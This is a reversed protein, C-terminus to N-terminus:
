QREIELQEGSLVTKANYPMTCYNCADIMKYDRFEDLKKALQEVSYDYINIIESTKKLKGLSVGGFQHPCTYLLGNCLRNCNHLFCDHFGNRLEDSSKKVWEFSSFDSWNQKKGIFFKVNFRKFKEITKHVNETLATSLSAQYNSIYGTYQPQSLLNCLEDSPVVTGNTFVHVTGVNQIEAVGSLIEIIDPHLFPEGGIFEILSLFDCASALYKLDKLVTAGPVFSKMVPDIYPVSECCHKCKLTCINGLIYGMMRLKKSGFHNPTYNRLRKMYELYSACSNDLVTCEYCKSLDIKGDPHCAETMCFASQLVMHMDHGNFIMHEPIGQRKIDAAVEPFIDRNVTAIILTKTLDIKKLHEPSLVTQNDPFTIDKYNKDILVPTQLNLRQFLWYFMRGITGAGYFVVLRCKIASKFDEIIETCNTKNNLLVTYVDASKIFKENWNHLTMGDPSILEVNQM